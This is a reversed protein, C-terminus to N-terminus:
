TMIQILLEDNKNMNLEENVPLCVYTYVCM